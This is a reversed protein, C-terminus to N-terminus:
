RIGSVQCGRDRVGTVATRNGLELLIRVCNLDFPLDPIRGSERAERFCRFADDPVARRIPVRFRCYRSQEVVATRHSVTRGDVVVRRATQGKPLLVSFKVSRGSGSYQVRVENRQQDTEYAYGFYAPGGPYRSVARVNRIGAATWRPCCAVEEFLRSTDRIGALGEQLARMWAGIDWISHDTSWADSFGPRGDPWYWTNTGGRTDKLLRHYLRIQEM